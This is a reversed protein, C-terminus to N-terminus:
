QNQYRDRSRQFRKTVNWAQSVHLTLLVRISIKTLNTAGDGFITRRWYQQTTRVFLVMLPVHHVPDLGISAISITSANALVIILPRM